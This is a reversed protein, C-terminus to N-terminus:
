VVELRPKRPRRTTPEPEWTDYPGPPPDPSAIRQRSM